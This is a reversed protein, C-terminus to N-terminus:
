LNAASHLEKGTHEYVKGVSVTVTTRTTLKRNRVLRTRLRVAAETHQLHGLGYAPPPELSGGKQGEFSKIYM